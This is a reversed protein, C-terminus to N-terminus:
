IAQMTEKVQVWQWYLAETPKKQQRLASAAALLSELESRSGPSM